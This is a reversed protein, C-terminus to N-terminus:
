RLNSMNHIFFLYASKVKEAMKEVGDRLEQVMDTIELAKSPSYYSFDQNQDQSMSWYLHSLPDSWAELLKLIVETLQERQEYSLVKIVQHYINWAGYVCSVTVNNAHM